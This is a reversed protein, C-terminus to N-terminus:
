VILRGLIKHTCFHTFQNLILKYRNISTQANMQIKALTFPRNKCYITFLQVGSSRKECKVAQLGCHVLRDINMRFYTTRFFLPMNQLVYNNIDTQNTKSLGPPDLILKIKDFFNIAKLSFKHKTFQRLPDNM